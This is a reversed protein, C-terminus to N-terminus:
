ANEPEWVEEMGTENRYLRLKAHMTKGSIGLIKAARTKNNGAHELTGEILRQEAEDITMGVRIGLGDAPADQKATVEAAKREFPAVHQPQLLGDGALIVAREIVNRLERVNGEWNREALLALLDNSVGTASTGHKRNLKGIMADVILPIDDRRERLPPLHIEFVNLRYYLDERLKGERIAKKPDRNTAALIRVDAQFEQKGGLRRFRLDELVRLLKAQMSLPMEGIEDLFLTGGQASEMAGTRREVAGTFAGKEHGFIESEMLMEPIAACNIAVFPATSRRSNSHIARAALEKGTGSEGTILVAASTPAVQRVIGFLEQMVRSHGVMEGLVGQFSLQRRLEANEANLRAQGGARALLLELARLDIPKELYWYGNLDHITRIAKEVSGFATMLITPTANGQRRLHRLLEFGDVRPMMLDSLIVEVDESALHALAELGDVAEVTQHGWGGITRTLYSRHDAEDDVILVRMSSKM